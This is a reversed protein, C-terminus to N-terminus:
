WHLSVVDVVAAIVAQVDSCSPVAADLVVSVETQPAAEVDFPRYIEAAM